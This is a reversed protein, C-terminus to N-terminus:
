YTVTLTLTDGNMAPAFAPEAPVRGHIPLSQEGSRGAGRVVNTRIPNIGNTKDANSYLDYSVAAVGSTMTRTTVATGSSSEDLGVHYPTPHTCQVAISFDLAITSTMQCTSQIVIAASFTSVATAAVAPRGIALALAIALGSVIRTQLTESCWVARMPKRVSNATM